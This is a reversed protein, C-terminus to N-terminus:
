EENKPITGDAKGGIHVSYVSLNDWSRFFLTWLLDPKSIEQNHDTHIKKDIGVRTKGGCVNNFERIFVIVTDLKM